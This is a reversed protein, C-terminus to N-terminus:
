DCFGFNPIHVNISPNIIVQYYSSLKNYITDFENKLIICKKSNNCNNYINQIRILQKVRKQQKEDSEKKNQDENYIKITLNKIIISM